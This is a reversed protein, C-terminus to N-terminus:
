PMGTGGGGPSPMRGGIIPGILMAMPPCPWDTMPMICPGPSLMTGCVGRGSGTLAPISSGHGSKICAARVAAVM